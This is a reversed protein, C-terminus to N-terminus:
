KAKRKAGAASKKRTKSAKSKARRQETDAAAKEAKDATEIMLKGIIRAMHPTMIVGSEVQRIAGDKGHSASPNGLDIRGEPGVEFVQFQPIAPRALWFNVNVLQSQTVALLAGDAHSIRFGDCKVYHIPFESPLDASVQKKKAM